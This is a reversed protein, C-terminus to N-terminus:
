QQFIIPLIQIITTAHMSVLRQSFDLAGMTAIIHSFGEVTFGMLLKLVFGFSNNPYPSFSASSFWIAQHFDL